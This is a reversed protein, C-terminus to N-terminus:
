KYIKREMPFWLTIQEFFLVTSIKNDKKGKRTSTQRWYEKQNM